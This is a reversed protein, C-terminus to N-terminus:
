FPPPKAIGRGRWFKVAGEQEHLYRVYNLDGCAAAALLEGLLNM